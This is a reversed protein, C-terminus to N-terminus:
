KMQAAKARKSYDSYAPLAIAALIGVLGIVPFMLGLIKVGLTNAPAPAGFRNAGETGGKFIWLLGVLPILAILVTWGSWDMDHSRQIFKFILFVFYAIGGIGIVVTGLTDLGAAALGAGVGMGLFGFLIYAGTMHALFRLRAIRGQSSWMRVPQVGGADDIVDDVAARPPAYPNVATM